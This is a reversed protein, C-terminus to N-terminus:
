LGFIADFVRPIWGKTASDKVQGQHEVRIVLNAVQSSLVTGQITVDKPDCIGSVVLTKIDDDFQQTERAEVVLTGNPKVDIVLASIRATFRDKREGSGEGKYDSKGDVDVSPGPSGIGPGLTADQILKRLSPFQRLETKLNFDKKTELTQESKQLSSENIILEIKDHKQWAKPKPPTVAYMSAQQMTVQNAAPGNQVPQGAQGSGSAGEAPPTPAPAPAPQVARIPRQFLSQANAPDGTVMVVGALIWWHPFARSLLTTKM